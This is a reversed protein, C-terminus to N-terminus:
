GDSTLKKKIFSLRGEKIAERLEDDWFDISTGCWIMDDNYFNFFDEGAVNVVNEWFSKM